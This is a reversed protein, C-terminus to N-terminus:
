TGKNKRAGSSGLYVTAGSFRGCESSRTKYGVGFEEGEDRKRSLRPGQGGLSKLARHRLARPPGCLPGAWSEPLVAMACRQCPPLSLAHRGNLDPPWRPDARIFHMHNDCVLFAEPPLLSSLPPPAQSLTGRSCGLFGQGSQLALIAEVTATQPLDERGSTCNRCTFM